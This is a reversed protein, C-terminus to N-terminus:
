HLCSSQRKYVDLHTYSVSLCGLGLYDNNTLIQKSANKCSLFKKVAIKPVSFIVAIKKLINIEWYFLVCSLKM